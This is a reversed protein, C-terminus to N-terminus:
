LSGRILVNNLQGPNLKWGSVFAGESNRIVNLGTKPNLFHTVPNKHYTGQIVKTADSQVHKQVADQFKQANAPNYNGKIGFDEAHKQFKKQLQKKSFSMSRGRMAGLAKACPKCVRSAEKSFKNGAKKAAVTIAKRKKPDKLIKGLAKAGQIVFNWAM